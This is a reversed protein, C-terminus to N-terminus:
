LRQPLIVVREKGEVESRIHINHAPDAFRSAAMAIALARKIVGANSSVGYVKKLHDLAEATKEDIDFSTQAM